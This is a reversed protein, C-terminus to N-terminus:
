WTYDADGTNILYPRGLGFFLALGQLNASPAPGAAYYVLEARRDRLHRAYAICKSAVNGYLYTVSPKKSLTRQSATGPLPPAIPRNSPSKEAIMPLSAPEAAESRDLAMVAACRSSCSFDSSISRARADPSAAADLRPPGGGRLPADRLSAADRLAAAGSRLAAACRLVAAEFARRADWSLAGFYERSSSGM